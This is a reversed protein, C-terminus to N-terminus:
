IIALPSLPPLNGSSATNHFITLNIRPNVIQPSSFTLFSRTRILLVSDYISISFSTVLSPASQKYLRLQVSSFMPVLLVAYSSILLGAYRGVHATEGSSQMTGYSGCLWRM